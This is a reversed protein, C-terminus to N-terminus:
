NPLAVPVNVFDVIASVASEVICRSPPVDLGARLGGLDWGLCHKAIPDQEPVLM